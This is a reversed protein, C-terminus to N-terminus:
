HRLTMAGAGRLLAITERLQRVELSLEDIRRRQESSGRLEAAERIRRVELSLSDVARSHPNESRADPDSVVPSGCYPCPTIERAAAGREQATEHM